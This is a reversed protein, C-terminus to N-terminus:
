LVHSNCRNTFRPVQAFGDGLVSHTKATSQAGQAEIRVKTNPIRLRGRIYRAHFINQEQRRTRTSDHPEEARPIAVNSSLSQASFFACLRNRSNEEATASLFSEKWEGGVLVTRWAFATVHRAAITM